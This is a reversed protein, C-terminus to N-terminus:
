AQLVDSLPRRPSPPAEREAIGLRFTFTPEWGQAAALKTLAPGYVDTRGLMQNRDIMEVPQNMPQAAIGEATAALHLRQWARGAEIAEAMDLRDKVLIMGLVPATAVQTDRTLGLWYQDASQADQDPMLKAVVTMLPSLGAADTVVGDRHEEIERRGTRFWRASDASMERDAVIEETAKVIMSGLEGRAGAGPFFVVRASPGSVLDALMRLKEAAIDDSRYRGRNTHRRPIMAFYPSQQASGSALAIQAAMVPEVSPSPVLRGQAPVVKSEFGFQSAAVALNEIACGLGLHMERRFPDFTGLNRARDANVTITDNEIVFLWPQTDHPNAALIASRLPRRIGDGAGGEWNAWPAYAEGQGASFVGRDWARYALGALVVAGAGGVVARRSIM